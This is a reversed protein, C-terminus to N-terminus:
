NSFLPMFDKLSFYPSDVLAYTIDRSVSEEAAPEVAGGHPGEEVVHWMEKEEKRETRRGKMEEM